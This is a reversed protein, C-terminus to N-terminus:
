STDAPMLRHEPPYQTLFPEFEASFHVLALGQRGQVSGRPAGGAGGGSGGGGWGARAPAMEVDRPVGLAPPDSGVPVGAVPAPLPEGWAQGLDAVRVLVMTGATGDVALWTGDM